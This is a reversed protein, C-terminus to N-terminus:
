DANKKAEVKSMNTTIKWTPLRRYSGSVKLIFCSKTCEDGRTVSKHGANARKQHFTSLTMSGLNLDARIKGGRLQTREPERVLSFSQAKRIRSISKNLAQVVVLRLPRSEPPHLILPTVLHHVAQVSIRLLAPPLHLRLLSLIGILAEQPALTEQM